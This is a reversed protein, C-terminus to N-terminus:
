APFGLEIIRNRVKWYRTGYWDIRRHDNADVAKITAKELLALLYYLSDINNTM